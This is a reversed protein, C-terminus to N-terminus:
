QRIKALDSRLPHEAFRKAWERPTLQDIQSAPHQNIRQLVDVLYTYADIGHARCTALLTQIAAVYRAGVETTCFLWNKRGMPIVRLARELDNTDLDLWADTLFVRLGAERQKAYALARALPSRPTLSPQAIQDDIWRFIDDVIPASQGQRTALRTAADARAERLRREVVYLAQIRELIEAVAKPDTQEAKLFTRRTHAWCLAHTCGPLKEAYQAYVQYGDTQTTGSFSEGLFAKAAAAGRQESYGFAIDGFEGLVPWLWGQKMKGQGAKPGSVTKTRGAKIPTEDIKLYRGRLIQEFVAKAVPELLQISRRLWGDLSTRSVVIGEDKLRQHQRYLPVHYVFRDIAMGALMSVEVQAHDLVGPQATTSVLQGDGKHRVVPRRYKLIVHSGPQRALKVSEKYGIVEYQAADPGDLQACSLVIEHVPVDPNFRIGSDNVEDGTRHKQRTHAPVDIRAPELGTLSEIPAEFLPAQDADALVRRESTQGFLQRKLWDLQRKLETVQDCLAEYQARPVMADLVLPQTM